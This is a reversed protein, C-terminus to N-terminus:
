GLRGDICIVRNHARHNLHNLARLTVPRFKEMRVGGRRLSEVYRKKFSSGWADYLFLVRVGARAREVLITSLTDAMRGPKNYYLQITISHKAARLDDWLRPYMEDGNRLIEASNGPHLETRCALEMSPLFADDHVSPLQSGDFDLVRKVPTGKVADLLGVLALIGVILGGILFGANAWTM